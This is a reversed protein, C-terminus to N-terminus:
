YTNTPTVGVWEKTENLLNEARTQPAIEDMAKAPQGQNLQEIASQARDALPQPENAYRYVFWGVIALLALVALTYYNM